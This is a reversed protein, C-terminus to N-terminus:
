FAILSHISADPLRRRGNLFGLEVMFALEIVDAGLERALKLSAEATGGTALLDDVIVVRDGSRVGDVHIEMTESGYELDYSESRTEYPLKGPKRLPVFGAGIAIALPAGFIFGRSEVALVQDIERGRYRSVLAEIVTAFLAPDQLVPTIDKFVIGPRPFDPVDRIADRVANMAEIM